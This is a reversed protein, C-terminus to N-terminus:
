PRPPSKRWGVWLVVVAAAAVAAVLFASLIADLNLLPPAPGTTPTFLIDFAIPSGRVSLSGNSPTARFGPVEGISFPYTGNPLALTAIAGSQSGVTGGSTVSWVTGSPLGAETFTVPYTARSFAVVQGLPAGDVTFSGGAAGYTRDTAQASYSYTGNSENFSPATTTSFATAYGQSIGSVNVWWGVGSPLGIETFTVTYNVETFEVSQSVNSGNVSVSGGPSEYAKDVSAAAYSYTGNPETLSLTPGSSVTSPGSSLNIWWETWPPLGDEGLVVSYTVRLWAVAV